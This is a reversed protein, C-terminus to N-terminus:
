LGVALGARFTCSTPVAFSEAGLRSTGVSTTPLGEIPALTVLFSAVLVGATVAFDFWGRGTPVGMLGSFPAIADLTTCDGGAASGPADAWCGRASGVCVTPLPTTR